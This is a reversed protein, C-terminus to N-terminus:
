IHQGKLPLEKAAIEEKWGGKMPQIMSVHFNYLRKDRFGNRGEKGM